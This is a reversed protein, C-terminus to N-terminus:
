AEFAFLFIFNTRAGLESIVWPTLIQYKDFFLKGCSANRFGYIINIKWKCFRFKHASVDTHFLQLAWLTVSRLVDRLWSCRSAPNSGEIHHEVYNIICHQAWDLKWFCGPPIPDWRPGSLSKMKKGASLRPFGWLWVTYTLEHIHHGSEREASCVPVFLCCCLHGKGWHM